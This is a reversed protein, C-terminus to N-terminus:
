ARSTGEAEFHMQARDLAEDPDRGHAHLWHLLDAILDITAEEAVALGLPGTPDVTPHTAGRYLALFTEARTVRGGGTHGTPTILDTPLECWTVKSDARLVVGWRDTIADIIAMGRGSEDRDTAALLTPLARADPDHVEIRLRTGAMSVVLTTPTGPGIHTLVNTVLETVCLQAADTLESLGWLRLHLAMVRRLGAVEEAEALFPLEWAKRPVECQSKDM